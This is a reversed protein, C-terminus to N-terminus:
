EDEEPNLSALWADFHYHRAEGKDLDPYLRHFERWMDGCWLTFPVGPAVPMDARDQAMQEAPTRGQIRAYQTFRETFESM